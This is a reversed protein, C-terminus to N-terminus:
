RRSANRGVELGSFGRPAVGIIPFAQRKLSVWRGVADARGGFESQWFTYSLVVGQAGCGRRDDGPAILRGEAARIGLTDFFEGSVWLGDAYRAEGGHGLDFRETSWAAVGSFAPQRQRLQEWIASTIESQRLFRGPGGGHVRRVSALQEPRAAGVTRLAVADILEFIAANAGIGLALSAIAVAAFGPNRRMLRAGLRVDKGLGALCGAGEETGPALPPREPRFL